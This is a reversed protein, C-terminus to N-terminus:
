KFVPEADRLLKLDEESSDKFSGEVEKELYELYNVTLENLHEKLEKLRRSVRSKDDLFTRELDSPKFFDNVLLKSVESEYGSM